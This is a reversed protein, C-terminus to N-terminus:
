KLLLRQVNSGIRVFYLGSKLLTTELKTNTFQIKLVLIERGTIDSIILNNGLLTEIVGITVEGDAPNPYLRFNTTSNEINLIATNTVVTNTTTNTVIPENFDFYIFATNNIETGIPLNGELMVRYQVYGHSAPENSFSDPLNITPFNFKIAKGIISVDPQHSYGLLRFSYEDIHQSLTDTIYINIAEANGTNQFRITYIIEKQSTDINGAPFATKDNPDYSNVVEYCMNLSNNSTNVDGITPTIVAAICVQQGIQANTDTLLIFNLDSMFNLAGFDAVSYTLTNGSVVPILAGSGASVFQVPGTFTVVISGSVGSACHAGYFNSLDGAGLYITTPWASRFVRNPALSQVTLDFGPKCRVGFDLNQILTDMPTLTATLSNNAPCFVEFPLGFTDVSITYTAFSDKDFIYAGLNNVYDKAILPGGALNLNVRINQAISDAADFICNLNDDFYISGIMTTDLLSDPVDNINITRCTMDSGFSNTVTLCVQFNGNTIYTKVPNQILSGTGDGFSWVWSTPFGNSVDEFYVKSNLQPFSFTFDATPAQSQIRVNSIFTFLLFMFTKSYVFNM